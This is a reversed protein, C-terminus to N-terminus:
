SHQFREFGLKNLRSRLTNVNMGAMAAAGNHGAIKGQTTALLQTFYRRQMAEFTELPGNAPPNMPSIAHHAGNEGAVAKAASALASDDASYIFSDIVSPMQMLTRAVVNKLERVNGPWPMAQAERIAKQTVVPVSGLGYSKTCRALFLKMLPWIDETRERLPKLHLPLVNLRYFLDLRFRKDRVLAALDCNTAGIVCIDVPIEGTGGVRRITRNQLVHLLKAQMSLPLEGIEDLFITGGDAEEFFGIRRSGAGTFAGAEHGFLESEILESPIASCNVRVFPSHCRASLAHVTQAVVEKGTGSEGTILLNEGFKAATRINDAIERMSPTNALLVSLSEERVSALSAALEQNESALKQHQRSLERSLAFGAQLSFLNNAGSLMDKHRVQFANEHDSWFCVIGYHQGDLQLKLMLFSAIKPFVQPAIAATFPDDHLHNVIIEDPTHELRVRNWYQKAASSVTVARSIRQALGRYASAFFYVANDEPKFINMFVGTAPFKEQSVASTQAAAIDDLATLVRELAVNVDLTSTLAQLIEARCTTYIM